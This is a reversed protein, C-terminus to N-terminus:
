IMIHGESLDCALFCSVGWIPWNLYCQLATGEVKIKFHDSEKKNEKWAKKIQKRDVFDFKEARSLLFVPERKYLSSLSHSNGLDLILLLPQSGLSHYLLNLWHQLVLM